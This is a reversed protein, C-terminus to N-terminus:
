HTQKNTKKNCQRLEFFQYLIVRSSTPTLLCHVNRAFVLRHMM